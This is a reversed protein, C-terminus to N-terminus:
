KPTAAACILAAAQREAAARQSPATALAQAEVFGKPEPVSVRLEQSPEDDTERADLAAIQEDTALTFALVGHSASRNTLAYLARGHRGHVSVSVFDTDAVELSIHVPGATLDYRCFASAIAPDRFGFQADDVPSALHTRLPAATIAVVKAYGDAKSWRPLLLLSAIHVIGAVLVAVGAYFLADLLRAQWTAASNAPPALRM